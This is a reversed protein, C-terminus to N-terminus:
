FLHKLAEKLVSEVDSNDDIEVDKVAKHADTSSYGLAVLASIADKKVGNEMSLNVSSSLTKGDVQKQILNENWKLKDQLDLVIREATKKGIGSATSILKADGSLIAFRIDDASAISLISLGGKPGVGNVTILRKFLKLEDKTLFGYLQFADERVVTYTYLKVSDGVPPLLSATLTSINVNIGIGNVDVVAKDEYVDDLIGNVFAIM